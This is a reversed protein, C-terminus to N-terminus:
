DKRLRQNEKDWRTKNLPIRDADLLEAITAKGKDDVRLVAFRAYGYLSALGEEFFFSGGGIKVRNGELEYQLLREGGALGGGSYPRKFTYLGSEDAAIVMSGRSPINQKAYHQYLGDEISFNLIMYDGQMLSRPDVPALELMVKDGKSLFLEKQVIAVNYTVLFLLLALFICVRWFFATPKPMM